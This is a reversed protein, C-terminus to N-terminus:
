ATTRFSLDARRRPEESRFYTAEAAAWSDWHGAFGDDGRALARDRRAGAPAELWVLTTTLDAWARHGAGVGELILFDAVPVERREAPEGRTWDYRRYHGPRARALPALLDGVTGALGPLGDWGLLLEDLHVVVAGTLEEALATALTTKGAGAPGDVCILRTRGLRAPHSSAHGIVQRPLDTGCPGPVRPAAEPNVM